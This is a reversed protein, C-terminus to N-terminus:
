NCEEAHDCDPLKDRSNLKCISPSEDHNVYAINILLDSMVDFCSVAVVSFPFCFWRPHPM